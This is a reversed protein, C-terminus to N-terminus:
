RDGAAGEGVRVQPVPGTREHERQAVGLTAEHAVRRGGGGDLCMVHQDRDAGLVLQAGEGRHHPASGDASSGPRSSPTCSGPRTTASASRSRCPGRPPEHRVRPERGRLDHAARRSDVAYAWMINQVGQRRPRDRRQLEPDPEGLRPLRGSSWAADGDVGLGDARREARAHLLQRSGAPSRSVAGCSCRPWRRSPAGRRRRVGRRHGRAGQPRRPRACPAGSSGRRPRSRTPPSRSAARRATRPSGSTM